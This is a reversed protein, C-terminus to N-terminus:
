FIVCMVVSFLPSDSWAVNVAVYWVFAGAFLGFVTNVLGLYRSVSCLRLWYRLWLSIM